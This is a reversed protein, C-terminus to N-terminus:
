CMAAEKFSVIECEMRKEGTGKRAEHWALLSASLRRSRFIAEGFLHIMYIGYSPRVDERWLQLRAFLRFRHSVFTGNARWCCAFVIRFAHVPVLTFIFLPTCLKSALMIEHSMSSTHPSHIFIQQHTAHASLLQYLTLM